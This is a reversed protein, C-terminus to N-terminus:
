ECIDMRLGPIAAIPTLLKKGNSALRFLWVLRFGGPGRLNFARVRYFWPEDLPVDKVFYVLNRTEGLWEYERGERTREIRYGSIHAGGAPRKWRLMLSGHPYGCADLRRVPGPVCRAFGSIITPSDLDFINGMVGALRASPTLCIRPCTFFTKVSVM